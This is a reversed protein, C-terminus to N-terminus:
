HNKLPFEPISCDVGLINAIQRLVSTDRCNQVLRALEYYNPRHEKEWESETLIVKPDWTSNDSPPFEVEGTKKVVRFQLKGFKEWLLARNNESTHERVEWDKYGRGTFEAVLAKM